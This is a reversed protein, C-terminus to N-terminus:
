VSWIMALSNLFGNLLALAFTQQPRAGLNQGAGSQGIAIQGAIRRRRPRPIERPMRM